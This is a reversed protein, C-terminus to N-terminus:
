NTLVLEEPSSGQIGGEESGEVQNGRGGWEQRMFRTMSLTLTHNLPILIDTADDTARLRQQNTKHRGALAAPAGEVVRGLPGSSGATEATLM